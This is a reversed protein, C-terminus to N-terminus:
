TAVLLVGDVGARRFESAMEAGMRKAEAVATGVGSTSIFWPYVGALTGQVELERVLNLPLIYNPNQGVIGTYFGRHVCEWDDASLAPLGAISYRFWERAGGRVLRDPNGKPVLGGTTVLGLTAHSLDAVPTAPSVREFPLVPLETTYPEGQLKAVLMAVAREHAPRDRRGLRRIGRPLYGEVEAPGLSEERGLKLALRALARLAPQMGAADASAPVIPAERRYVDVAPNEPYMATVAPLGLERAVRCVLGCALGYRGANFAPGAIVVDPRWERLAVRIAEEAAAGQENVYNDGGAITAVITGQSDFLTELARGPGVLGPRVEVRYGAQEEAGIGAFFQNLYHVARVRRTSPATGGAAPAAM